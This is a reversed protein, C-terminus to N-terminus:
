TASEVTVKVHDGIDFKEREKPPLEIVKRGKEAHKSQINAYFVQKM